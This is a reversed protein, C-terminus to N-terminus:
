EGINGAAVVGDLGQEIQYRVNAALRDYDVAGDRFPTVMATLAGQIM